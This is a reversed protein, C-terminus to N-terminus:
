YSSVISQPNCCLSNVMEVTNMKECERVRRVEARAGESNHDFADHDLYQKTDNQWAYAIYKKTVEDTLSLTLAKTYTSM